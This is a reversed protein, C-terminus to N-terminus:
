ALTHYYCHNSLREHEAVQTANVDTIMNNIDDENTEAPILLVEHISSPIICLTKIGKEICFSDLVDDLLMIAAGNTKSNTTAVYMMDDIASMDALDEASVEMMDALVKIMPQIKVQARLNHRAISRLEDADIGINALLQTTVVTSMSYDDTDGIKIRFYEELDNYVPFKIITDDDTVHRVCSVVHDKVFDVSTLVEVDVDPANSIIENVFGILEENSDINEISEDYVTPRVRGNGISLCSKEKGNKRTKGLEATIGAENLVLQAKKIKM